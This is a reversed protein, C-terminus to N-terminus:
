TCVVLIENPNSYQSVPKNVFNKFSQGYNSTIRFWIHITFVHILITPVQSRLINQQSKAQKM